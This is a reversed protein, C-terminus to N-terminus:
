LAMEDVTKCCRGIPKLLYHKVRTFKGDLGIYVPDGLRPNDRFQNTCLVPSYSRQRKLIQGFLEEKPIKPTLKPQLFSLFPLATIAKLIDRRNM